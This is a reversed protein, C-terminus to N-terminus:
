LLEPVLCTACPTVHLGEDNDDEREDDVNGDDYIMMLTALVVSHLKLVLCYELGPM